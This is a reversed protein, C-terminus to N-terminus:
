PNCKVASLNSQGSAPSAAENSQGVNDFTFMGLKISESPQYVNFINTLSDSILSDSIISRM